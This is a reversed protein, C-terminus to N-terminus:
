YIWISLSHDVPHCEYLTYGGPTRDRICNVNAGNKTNQLAQRVAAVNNREVGNLLNRDAAAAAAVATRSLISGDHAM